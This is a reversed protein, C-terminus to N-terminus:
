QVCLSYGWLVDYLVVHQALWMGLAVSNGVEMRGVKFLRGSLPKDELM